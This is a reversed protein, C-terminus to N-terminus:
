KDLVRRELDLLRKSLAVVGVLAANGYAISKTGTEDESVALPLFEELSQAGAGVQRAGTDTRLYEGAKLAAFRDVLDTALPKWDKKLREDSTSILNGTVTLDGSGNVTMVTNFASNFFDAAKLNVRFETAFGNAGTPVLRTEGLATTSASSNLQVVAGFDASANANHFVNMRRVADGNGRFALTGSM